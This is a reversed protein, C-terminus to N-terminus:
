LLVQQLPDHNSGRGNQEALERLWSETENDHIGALTYFLMMFDNNYLVGIRYLLQNGITVLEVFEPVSQRLGDTLGVPQLNHDGAEIVVMYGITALSWEELPEDSGLAHYLGFFEEELYNMYDLPLVNAQRLMTVDAATMIIRM